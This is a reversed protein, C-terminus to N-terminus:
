LVQGVDVIAPVRDHFHVVGGNQLERVSPVGDTDVGTLSVGDTRQPDHVHQVCGPTYTRGVVGESSNLQLAQGTSQIARTKTTLASM